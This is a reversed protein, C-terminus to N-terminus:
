AVLLFIMLEKLGIKDALERVVVIAGNRAKDLAFLTILSTVMNATGLGGVLVLFEKGSGKLFVTGLAAAQAPGLGPFFGALSGIISAGATTKVLQRVDYNM